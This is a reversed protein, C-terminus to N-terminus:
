YLNYIINCFFRAFTEKNKKCLFKVFFISDLLLRLLLIEKPILCIQTFFLMQCPQSLPLAEYFADPATSFRFGLKLVEARILGYIRNHRVLYGDGLNDAVSSAFQDHTELLRALKM